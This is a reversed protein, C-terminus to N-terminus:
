RISINTSVEDLWTLATLKANINDWVSEHKKDFDAGLGKYPMLHFFQNQM